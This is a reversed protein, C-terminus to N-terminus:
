SGRGPRVRAIVEDVSLVDGFFLMWNNLANIHEEPTLAALADEVMVTPYNMVMADRATSECCTNTLTGGILVTSIGRAKLEEDLRSSGPALASYSRKVIRPDGPLADLGSALAFGQHSASLQRLRRTSREPTLMHAHMHSWFSHAGDSCTQIWIVTGGATRLANALKNVAGFITRAAACEGMYGPQTFYNQLDIVVFATSRADFEPYPHLCGQRSMVRDIVWPPFQM